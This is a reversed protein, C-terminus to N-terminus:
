NKGNESAAPVLYSASSVFLDFGSAQERITFKTKVIKEDDLSRLGEGIV